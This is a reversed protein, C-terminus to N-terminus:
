VYTNILIVNHVEATPGSQLPQQQVNSNKGKVMNLECQLRQLHSLIEVNTEDSQPTAAPSRCYLLKFAFVAIQPCHRLGQTRSLNVGCGTCRLASLGCERVTETMCDHEISSSYFSYTRTPAQLCTANVGRAGAGMTM